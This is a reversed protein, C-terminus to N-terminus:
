LLDGVLLVGGPFRLVLRTLRVHGVRGEKLRRDARPDADLGRGFHFFPFFLSFFFFFFEDFCFCFCFLGFRFSFSELVSPRRVGEAAWSRGREIGASTPRPVSLLALPERTM